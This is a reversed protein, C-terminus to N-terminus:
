SYRVLMSMAAYIHAKVGTTLAPEHIVFYPSHNGPLTKPDGGPETIGLFVYTGPIVKQFQSFDEAGTMPLANPEVMARNGTAKTMAEYLYGTLDPDNYTLPAWTIFEVTATAGYASALATVTNTFRDIIELRREPSFTRLTGEIVYDEPLINWRLGGHIVGLSFVTPEETVNIQRSTIQHSAGIIDASLASLDTGKWPQAGHAQTGKLTIKVQDATAMFGKSRYTISGSQGPGVHIGFISQVKPNNLVGDKVMLAAGGEEGAPPGEEAPQFIFVITGAIESRLKSLVSAAALLMAVHADHGCAHTVPVTQGNYLGTAKSAFPLGSKDPVPLADMDARLAVVPGPKAGKLIGKVGTFAIKERVELGMARLEKAVLAATEFERNGLEPNQHIHRRWSIMQAEIKKVEDNILKADPVNKKISASGANSNKQGLLSLFATLNMIQARRSIKIMKKLEGKAFV